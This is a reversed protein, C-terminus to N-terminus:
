QPPTKSNSNIPNQRIYYSKVSPTNTTNDAYNQTVGIIQTIYFM